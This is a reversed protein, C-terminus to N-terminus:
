WGWPKGTSSLNTKKPTSKRTVKYAKGAFEFKDERYPWGVKGKAAPKAVPDAGTRRAHSMGPKYDRAKQNSGPWGWPVNDSKGMHAHVPTRKETRAAQSPKTHEGWGWPTPTDNITTRTRVAERALHDTPTTKSSPLIAQYVAQGAGVVARYLWLVVAALILTAVFLSAYFFM